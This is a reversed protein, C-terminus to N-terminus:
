ESEAEIATEVDKVTIQGGRGTGVIKSIDIGADNALEIAKATANVDEAESPTTEETEVVPAPPPPMDGADAAKYLQHKKPDFDTENIEVFAGQSKPHTSKIRVVKCTGHTM